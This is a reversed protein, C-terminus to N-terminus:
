VDNWTFCGNFIVTKFVFVENAGPPKAEREGMAPEAGPGGSAAVSV